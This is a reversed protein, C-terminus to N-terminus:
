KAAPHKVVLVSCPAHTVVHTAVSGMVLKRLGTRGHSGLVILDAGERKAEDLLAERPDGQVVRGEVQLGAEALKRVARGVLDEHVRTIEAIWVATDVGAPTFPETYAGIALYAASVVTMKTDAPWRMKRVFELTAEAHPSGDVGILVNM